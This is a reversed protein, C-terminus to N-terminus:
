GQHPRGGGIIGQAFRRHAAHPPTPPRVSRESSHDIAAYVDDVQFYFSAWSEAGM